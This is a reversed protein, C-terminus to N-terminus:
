NVLAKVIAFGYKKTLAAQAMKDPDGISSLLSKIFGETTPLPTPRDDSIHFSKMWTKEHEKCIKDIYTECSLRIFDRAQLVDLGTYMQVVGQRKIPISLLDDLRDLLIESTRGTASATAFDDVQRKFLLREGNILGSYLCPEHKTPKLGLECLIKNIHKEWLRPAEPHGQIARQV